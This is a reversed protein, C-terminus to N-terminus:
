PTDSSPSTSLLSRLFIDAIQAAIEDGSLRGEPRFWVSVWNSAGLLARTFIGADVPRFVGAQMGEEVIQRYLAEFNDRRALYRAPVEPLSLTTRMEFIMLAAVAVNRTVSRVHAEIARRLKEDPALASDAIAQLDGIVQDLGSELVAILIAEKGGKFHHYLSGATLGVAASIDQMTAGHYGRECFVQAAAHLIDDRNVTQDAPRRPM